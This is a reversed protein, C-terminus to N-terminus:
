RAQVAVKARGTESSLSTGTFRSRSVDSNRPPFGRRLHNERGNSTGESGFRLCWEGDLRTFFAGGEYFLRALEPDRSHILLPDKGDYTFCFRKSLEEAYRAEWKGHVGIAGHSWADYFLHEMVKGISESLACMLVVEAIRDETLYYIYCGITQGEEDKLAVKRLAGYAKMLGMFNVLWSLSDHDYAPKVAFGRSSDALFSLLTDVELPEELAAPKPQKFPTLRLRSVIADTAGSLPKSLKAFKETWSWKGRRSLAYLGYASPRLPRSWHKAYSQAISGGFGLWITQSTPNATDSLSLDQNGAFFARVLQLGAPTTRSDPHVIFGSGFAVRLPRTDLTMRRVIVGLFGVIAGRDNQYVLSPADADCWPSCLFLEQLYGELIQPAAGQRGHMFRWTLNAVQSVDDALFPRVRGMM